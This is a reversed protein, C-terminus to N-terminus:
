PRWDMHEAEATQYPNQIIGFVEDANALHFGVRM